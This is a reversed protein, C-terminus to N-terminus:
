QKATRSFLRAFWSKAKAKAKPKNHGFNNVHPTCGVVSWVSMNDYQAKIALQRDTMPKTIQKPM